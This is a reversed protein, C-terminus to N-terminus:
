NPKLIYLIHDRIEKVTSHNSIESIKNKDINLKVFIERLKNLSKLFNYEMLISKFKRFHNDIKQIEATLYSHIYNEFQLYTTESNLMNVVLTDSKYIDHFRRKEYRFPEIKKFMYDFFERQGYQCMKLIIDDEM